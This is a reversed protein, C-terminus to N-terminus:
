QPIRASFQLLYRSVPEFRSLPCKSPSRTSPLNQIWRTQWEVVRAKRPCVGVELCREQTERPKTSAIVNTEYQIRFPNSTGSTGRIQWQDSVPTSSTRPIEWVEELGEIRNQPFPVAPGVTSDKSYNAVVQSVHHSEASLLFPPAIRIRGQIGQLGAM